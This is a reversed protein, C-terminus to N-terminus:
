STNIGVTCETNGGGEGLAEAHRLVKRLPTIWVKMRSFDTVKTM